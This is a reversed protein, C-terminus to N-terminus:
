GAGLVAAMPTPVVGLREADSTGQRATM